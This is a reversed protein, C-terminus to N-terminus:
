QPKIAKQMAHAVGQVDFRDLAMAILRTLPIGTAKAAARYVDLQQIPIKVAESKPASM